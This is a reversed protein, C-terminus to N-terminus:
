QIPAFPDFDSRRPVPSVSVTGTGTGADSEQQNKTNSPNLQPSPWARAQDQTQGPVQFQHNGRGNPASSQLPPMASASASLPSTSIIPQKTTMGFLDDFTNADDATQPPPQASPTTPSSSMEGDGMMAFSCRKDETAGVVCVSSARPRIAQQQSGIDAGAAAASTSLPSPTSNDAGAGNSKQNTRILAYVSVVGPHLEYIKPLDFFSRRNVGKTGFMIDFQRIAKKNHSSSFSAGYIGGPPTAFAVLHLLHDKSSKTHFKLQFPM